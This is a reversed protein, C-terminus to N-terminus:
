RVRQLYQLTDLYGVSIQALEICELTINNKVGIKEKELVEIMVNVNTTIVHDCILFAVIFGALYCGLCVLAYKIKM